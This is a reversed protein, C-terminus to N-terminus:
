DTVSAAPLPLWPSHPYAAAPALNLLLVMLLGYALYGVEGILLFRPFLERQWAPQRNLEDVGEPRKLLLEVLGLTTQGLVELNEGERVAVPGIVGLDPGDLQAQFINGQM